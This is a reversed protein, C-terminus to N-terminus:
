QTFLDCLSRTKRYARFFAPATFYTETHRTDTRYLLDRHATSQERLGMCRRRAHHFIRYELLYSRATHTNGCLPQTVARAAGYAARASERGTCLGGGDTGGGRGGREVEKGVGDCAGALLHACEGGRGRGGRVGCLLISRKCIIWFSGLGNLLIKNEVTGDQGASNIVVAMM